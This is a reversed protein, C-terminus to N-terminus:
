FLGEIRRLIAIAAATRATATMTNITQRELDGFGATSDVSDAVGGGDTTIEPADDPTIGFV